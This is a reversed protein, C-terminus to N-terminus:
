KLKEIAQKQQITLSYFVETEIELRNSSYGASKIAENRTTEMAKIVNQCAPLFHTKIEALVKNLGENVENANAQALPEKRTEVHEVFQLITDGLGILIGCGNYISEEVIAQQTEAIENTAKNTNKM